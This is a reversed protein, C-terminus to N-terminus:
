DRQRRELAEIRNSLHQLKQKFLRSKYPELLEKRILDPFDYLSVSKGLKNKYNEKEKYINEIWAIVDEVGREYDYEFDFDTVNGGIMLNTKSLGTELIM